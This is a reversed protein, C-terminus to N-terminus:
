PAFYIVCQTSADTGTVMFVTHRLPVTIDQYPMDCAHRTIRRDEYLVTSRSGGNAWPKLRSPFILM